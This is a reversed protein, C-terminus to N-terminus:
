GFEKKDEAVIADCLKCRLKVHVPGLPHKSRWTPDEEEEFFDRRELCVARQKNSLVDNINMQQKM